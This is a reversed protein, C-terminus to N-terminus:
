LLKCVRIFYTSQFCFFLLSICFFGASFFEFSLSFNVHHIQQNLAPKEWNICVAEKIKQKFIQPPNITLHACM